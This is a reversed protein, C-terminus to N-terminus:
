RSPRSWAAAAIVALGGAIGVNKFFLEIEASPAGAQWFPHLTANVIAAYAILLIAAWCVPGRGLVVILGAIGEFAISAPLLIATPRLGAAAMRRTTEASAFAKAVAALVIVAGVAARGVVLLAVAASRHRDAPDLGDDLMATM